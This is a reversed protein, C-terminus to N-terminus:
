NARKIFINQQQGLKIVREEIDNKLLVEKASINIITYGFLTAGQKYLRNNILAKKNLLGKFTISKRKKKVIQPIVTTKVSKPQVVKKKKAIYFPTFPNKLASFNFSNPNDLQNISRDIQAKTTQSFLMTALIFFLLISSVIKM